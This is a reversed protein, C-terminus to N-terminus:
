PSVASVEGDGRVVQSLRSAWGGDGEGEWDEGM